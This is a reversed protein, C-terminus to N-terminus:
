AARRLLRGSRRLLAHARGLLARRRARGLRARRRRLAGRRAGEPGRALVREILLSTSIGREYPVYAMIGRAIAAAFFGAQAADDGHVVLDVRHADLFADTLVLPPREVVADVETCHRVMALREAHAMVPARKWRADEDTIVGALLRAGAGGAARARKLFAVHGPHFLDFVGDVYVTKPPAAATAM